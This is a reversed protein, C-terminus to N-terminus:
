QGILPSCSRTFSRMVMVNVGMASLSVLVDTMALFTVKSSYNTHTPPPHPNQPTTVHVHIALTPTYGKCARYMHGTVCSERPFEIGQATSLVVHTHIVTNNYTSYM